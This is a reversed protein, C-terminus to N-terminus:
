VRRLLALRFQGRLMSPEQREITLPGDEFLEELCTTISTAAVRTARDLVRRTRGPHCDGPVFKDLVVARGGPRLVRGVEAVCAAPAPLVALILHLVVADFAADPFDLSTADMVQVRAAPLLQAARRGARQAMAPSVDIAEVSAGPPVFEFDLGTGCGVILLKEDPELDLLEFSRRRANRTLGGIVDYIPAYLGWRAARWREALAGHAEPSPDAASSRSV